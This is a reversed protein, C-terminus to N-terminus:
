KIFNVSVLEQKIIRRFSITLGTASSWQYLEMDSEKLILGVDPVFYEYGSDFDYDSVGLHYHFTTLHIKYATYTGSSITVPAYAVVQAITENGMKGASTDIFKERTWSDGVRLTKKIYPASPYNVVMDSSTVTMLADTTDRFINGGYVLDTANIIRKSYTKGIKLSDLEEILSYSIGPGRGEIYKYVQRPSSLHWSTYYDDPISSVRETYSSSSCLGSRILLTDMSLKNFLSDPISYYPENTGSKLWRETTKYVRETGISGMYDVPQNAIVPNSKDSCSIFIMGFIALIIFNIKTM